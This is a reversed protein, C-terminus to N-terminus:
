YFFICMMIVIGQWFKLLMTIIQQIMCYFISKAINKIKFHFNFICHRCNTLYEEEVIYGKIWVSLRVSSSFSESMIWSLCLWPLPIYNTIINWGKRYKGGVALRESKSFWRWWCGLLILFVYLIEKLSQSQKNKEPIYFKQNGWKTDELTETKAVQVCMSYRVQTHETYM